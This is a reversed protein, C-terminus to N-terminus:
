GDPGGIRIATGEIDAEDPALDAGCHRTTAPLSTREGNDGERVGLVVGVVVALSCDDLLRLPGDSRARLEVGGHDDLEAIQDTLVVVEGLPPMDGVTQFDEVVGIQGVGDDGAVVVEVIRGALEGLAIAEEGGERYAPLGHVGVM